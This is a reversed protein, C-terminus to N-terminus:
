IALLWEPKSLLLIGILIIITSVIVYIGKPHKFFLKKGKLMVIFIILYYIMFFLIYILMYFCYKVLDINNASFMQTFSMSLKTSYTFDLINIMISLLVIGLIVLIVNNNKKVFRKENNRDLLEDYRKLSVIGLIIISLSVILRIWTIFDILREYKFWSFMFSLYILLSTFIFILGIVLLRKKDDKAVLISILLFLILIIPNFGDILGILMALLPFSMNNLSFEGIIPISAKINNQKEDDSNDKDEQRDKIIGLKIGVEDVFDSRRAQNINYILTDPTTSKIYGSIAKNNVVTYPVGTVNTDLFDSIENLLKKNEENYWVEYRYININYKEKISNLYEYEEECHPCTEGYFMYVNVKDNLAYIKDPLFLICLFLLVVCLIKLKKM